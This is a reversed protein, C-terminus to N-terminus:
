GGCVSLRRSIVSVCAIKGGSNAWKPPTVRRAGCCYLDNTQQWAVARYLPAIAKERGYRQMCGQCGCEAAWSLMLFAVSRRFSRWRGRLVRVLDTHPAIAFTKQGGFEDPGAGGTERKRRILGGVTSLALHYLEAVEERTHGSEIAAAARERLDDSYAKSDQIQRAV